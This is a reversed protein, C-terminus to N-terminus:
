TIELMSNQNLRCILHLMPLPHLSIPKETFGLMVNHLDSTYGQIM